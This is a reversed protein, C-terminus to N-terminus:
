GHNKILSRGILLMPSSYTIKLRQVDLSIFIHQLILIFYIIKTLILSVVQCNDRMHYSVLTKTEHKLSVFTALITCRKVKPPFVCSLSEAYLASVIKQWLWLWASRWRRSRCLRFEVYYLFSSLHSKEIWASNLSYFSM